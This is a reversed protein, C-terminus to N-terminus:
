VRETTPAAHTAATLSVHERLFFVWGVLTVPVYQSAHLLIAYAASTETPVDFIGLALIAAAHFVGIFGPASPISIGLGVFALVTWGATWGLDLNVARIVAWTALAPLCWVVVTWAALPGAHALTRVGELGRAFTEVMGLVRAALAPWPRLCASTVARFRAPAVVLAVLAAVAVVDVALLAAAAWQLERPVPILLMLGGLVAVIALGDLVREVIVTALITWFGHGWRRAVVYVRVIEGARLPLINNVMYGIMMAPLLGPPRSGAPFLYHWRRARVVLGVPGLVAALLIWEWRAHRLEDLLKGADIRGGFYVLLAV